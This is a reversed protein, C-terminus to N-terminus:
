STPANEIVPLLTESSLGRTWFWRGVVLLGVIRLTFFVLVVSYYTSWYDHNSLVSREHIHHILSLVREPVYTIDTAAWGFLMMAFARNVLLTLDKRTM